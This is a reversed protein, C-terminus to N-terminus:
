YRYTLASVAFYNNKSQVIPSNASAGLLWAVGGALSFMYFNEAYVMPPCILCFLPLRLYFLRKRVIM